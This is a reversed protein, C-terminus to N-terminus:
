CVNRKFWCSNPQILMERWSKEWLFWQKGASIMPRDCNKPDLPATGVQSSTIRPVPTCCPAMKRRASAKVKWHCQSDRGWYGWSDFHNRMPDIREPFVDPHNEMM